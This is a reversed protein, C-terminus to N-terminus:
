TALEMFKYVVWTSTRLRGARCPVAKYTYTRVYVALTSVRLKCGPSPPLRRGMGFDVMTARHSLIVVQRSLPHRVIGVQSPAMSVLIVLLRPRGRRRWAECATLLLKPAHTSWLPHAAAVSTAAPHAVPAFSSAPPLSLPLPLRPSRLARPLPVCARVGPLTSAPLPTLRLYRLCAASFIFGHRM